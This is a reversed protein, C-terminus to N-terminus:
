TQRERLDDAFAQAAAGAARFAAAARSAEITLRIALRRRHLGPGRAWGASSPRYGRRKTM